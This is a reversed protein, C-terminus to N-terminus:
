SGWYKWAMALAVSSCYGESLFHRVDTFCGSAWESRRIRRILEAAKNEEWCKPQDSEPTDTKM